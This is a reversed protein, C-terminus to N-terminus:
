WCLSFPVLFSWRFTVLWALLRVWRVFRFALVSWCGWEVLLRFVSVGLGFIGLYLCLALLPRFVFRTLFQSDVEQSVSLEM